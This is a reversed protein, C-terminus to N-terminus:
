SFPTSSLMRGGREGRGEGREGRREEKEGRGRGERIGGRSHERCQSVCPLAESGTWVCTQSDCCGRAGGRVGPWPPPWALQSPEARGARVLLLRREGPSAAQVMRWCSHPACGPSPQPRAVLRPCGGAAQFSGSTHARQRGRTCCAGEEDRHPGTSGGAGSVQFGGAGGPGEADGPIPVDRKGQCTERHSPLEWRGPVQLQRCLVSASTVCASGATDTGPVSCTSVAGDLPEHRKRHSKAALSQQGRHSQLQPGGMM